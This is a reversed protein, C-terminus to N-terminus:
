NTNNNSAKVQEKIYDSLNKWVEQMQGKEKMNNLFDICNETLSKNEDYEDMQKIISLRKIDRLFWYAITHFPVENKDEHINSVVKVNESRKLHEGLLNPLTDDFAGECLLCFACFENDWYVKYLFSGFLSSEIIDGEYIEKGNSDYMTTFQGVTNPIVPTNYGDKNIFATTMSENCILNGYLWAGTVNHKGRYKIQRM